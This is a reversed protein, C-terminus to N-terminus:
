DLDRDMYEELGSRLEDLFRTRSGARTKMRHFAHHIDPLTISFLQEFIACLEKISVRHEGPGQNVYIAYILEILANKSKTWRLRGSLFGLDSNKKKQVRQAKLYNFLLDRSEMKALLFDYYTSFQPDVEFVISRVAFRYDINGRTFYITDLDTRDFRFYRYFDRERLDNKYEKSLLRLHKDYYSDLVSGMIAPRSLEIQVVKNYYILRGLLKPKVQKFFYIEENADQFGHDLVCSKLQLLVDNLYEIIKMIEGVEARDVIIEEELEELREFTKTLYSRM